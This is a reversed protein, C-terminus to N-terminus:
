WQRNREVVVVDISCGMTRSPISKFAEVIQEVVAPDYNYHYDDKYPRIDVLGDYIIFGHWERKIGLVDWCLM